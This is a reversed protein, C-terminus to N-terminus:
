NFVFRSKFRSHKTLEGSRAFVNRRGIRKRHSLGSFKRSYNCTWSNWFVLLSGVKPLLSDMPYSDKAHIIWEFFYPFEKPRPSKQFRNPLQGQAHGDLAICTNKEYGAQLIVGSLLYNPDGGNILWPTRGNPLPGVVM